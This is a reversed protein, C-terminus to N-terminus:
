PVKSVNQRERKKTSSYLVFISLFLLGLSLIWYLISEAGYLKYVTTWGSDYGDGSNTVISEYKGLAAVDLVFLVGMMGFNSYRIIKYNPSDKGLVRLFSLAMEVLCLLTFIDAISGFFLSVGPIRSAAEDLSYTLYGSTAYILYIIAAVDSLTVCSPCHSHFIDAIYQYM